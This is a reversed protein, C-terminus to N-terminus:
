RRPKIVAAEIPDEKLESGAWPNSEGSQPDQINEEGQTRPIGQANIKGLEALLAAEHERKMKEGELKWREDAQRALVKIRIQRQEDAILEELTPHEKRMHRLWQMWQPPTDFTDAIFAREKVTEKIRRMRLFNGDNTWEWYTNGNLDYGIFFKTRWPVNRLACWKHFLQKFPTVKGNLREM